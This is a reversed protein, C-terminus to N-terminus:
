SEAAGSLGFRRRPWTAPRCVGDADCVESALILDGVNLGAVVAGSFGASLVLSPRYPVGDVPPGSLLWSLAKEM